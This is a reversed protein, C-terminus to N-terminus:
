YEWKTHPDNLMFIQYLVHFPKISLQLPVPIPFVLNKTQYAWCLSVVDNLISQIYDAGPCVIPHVIVINVRNDLFLVGWIMIDIQQESKNAFIYLYTCEVFRM